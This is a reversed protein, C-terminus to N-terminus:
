EAVKTQQPQRAACRHANKEEPPHEGSVWRKALMPWFAVVGPIILLKFGWTGEVAGHDIKKVGFIVFPVAFVLGAVLYIAVASLLIGILIEM